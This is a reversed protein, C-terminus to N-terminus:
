KVRAKEKKADKLLDVFMQYLIDIRANAMDIRAIGAKLNSEIDSLHGELLNFRADNRASAKRIMWSIFGSGLAVITLAAAIAALWEQWTIGDM